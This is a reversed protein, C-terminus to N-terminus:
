SLRSKFVVFLREKTQFTSLLHLNSSNSARLILVVMEKRTLTSEQIISVLKATLRTLRDVTLKSHYLIEPERLLPPSDKLDLNEKGAEMIQLSITKEIKRELSYGM